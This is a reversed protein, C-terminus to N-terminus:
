MRMTFSVIAASAPRPRPPPRRLVVPRVAPEARAKADAAHAERDERDAERFPRRVLSDRLERRQPVVTDLPPDRILSGM